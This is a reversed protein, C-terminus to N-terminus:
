IPHWLMSVDSHHLLIAPCVASMTGGTSRNSASLRWMRRTVSLGIGDTILLGLNGSLGITAHLAANQSSVTVVKAGNVTVGHTGDVHVTAGGATTPDMVQGRHRLPGRM